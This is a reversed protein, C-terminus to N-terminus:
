VNIRGLVGCYKADTLLGGDLGEIAEVRHQWKTRPSGFAMTELVIPM